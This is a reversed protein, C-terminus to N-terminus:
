HRGSSLEPLNVDSVDQPAYSFRAKLILVHSPSQSKAEQMSICGSDFGYKAVQVVFLGALDIVM